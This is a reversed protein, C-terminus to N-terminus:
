EELTVLKDALLLEAIKWDFLTDLDIANYRDIPVMTVKSFESMKKKLLAQIKIIYVSGTNMWVKPADQRRTIKGAGKSPILYKNEDFELCDYYPNADAEKAGIVMEVAPMSEYLAIAREVDSVKRFPSTPQLLVVADYSRKLTNLYYNVAHVIADHSTAMDTALYEPRKFPVQLGFSEVVKIIEDDDTTVCIDKDPVFKRAIDISYKILPQGGLEKINKGPIGKSGGRATIIYLYNM